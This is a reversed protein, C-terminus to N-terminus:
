SNTGKVEVDFVEGCSLCVHTKETGPKLQVVESRCKPCQVPSPPLSTVKPKSARKRKSGPKATPSEVQKETKTSPAVAAVVESKEVPTGLPKDEPKKGDPGPLYAQPKRRGKFM